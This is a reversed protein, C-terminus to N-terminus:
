AARNKARDTIKVVMDSVCESIPEAAESTCRVAIESIKTTESMMSDMIGKLYESQLELLDRMTKVGMMAKSTAMTNEMSSQMTASVAQGLDKMGSAIINAAKLCAEVNNRNLTAAEEMRSMFDRNAKEFQQSATQMGSEMQNAVNQRANEFIEAGPLSALKGQSQREAM